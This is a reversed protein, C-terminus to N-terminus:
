KEDEKKSTCHTNGQCHSCSGGCGGGFEKKKKKVQFYVVCVLIVVAVVGTIIDIM